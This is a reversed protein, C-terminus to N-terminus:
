AAPNRKKEREKAGITWVDEIVAIANIWQRRRGRDLAKM